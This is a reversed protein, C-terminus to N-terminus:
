SSATQVFRNMNPTRWLHYLFHSLPNILFILSQDVFISSKSSRGSAGPLHSVMWLFVPPCPLEIKLVGTGKSTWSSLLHRKSEWSGSWLPQWGQGQSSKGLNYEWHSEYLLPCTYLTPTGLILSRVIASLTLAEWSVKSWMLSHTDRNCGQTFCYCFPWHVSFIKSNVRHCLEKLTRFWSLILFHNQKKKKWFSNSQETQLSKHLSLVSYTLVFQIWSM